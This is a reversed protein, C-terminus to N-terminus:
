SQVPTPPIAPVTPKPGHGLDRTRRAAFYGEVFDPNGPRFQLILNDMKSFLAEVVNFRDRLLATLAKRQAIASQPTNIVEDFDAADGSTTAILVQTIGCDAAQTPHDQLASQALAIVERATSLLTADRFRRWQSLSFDAKAATAEDQLERYCETVAAGLIHATTELEAQEKAKDKAAGTIVSSQKGCFEALEATAAAAEASRKTFGMPAQNLWLQRVSDSDLYTLTTNFSDLRNTFTDQM